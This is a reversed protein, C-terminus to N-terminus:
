LGKGRGSTIGSRAAGRGRGANGDVTVHSHLRSAPRTDEVPFMGATNAAYVMHDSIAIEDHGRYSDVSLSVPDGRNKRFDVYTEAFLLAAPPSSIRGLFGAASAVGQQAAFVYAEGLSRIM